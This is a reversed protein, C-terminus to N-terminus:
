NGYGVLESSAHLKDDATLIMRLVGYMPAEASTWVHREYYVREFRWRAITLRAPWSRGAVRITTNRVTLDAQHREADRLAWDVDTRETRITPLGAQHGRLRMTLRLDVEDDRVDVVELRQEYGDAM